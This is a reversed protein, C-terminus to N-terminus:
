RRPAATRPNLVAARAMGPPGVRIPRSIADLARDRLEQSPKPTTPLGGPRHQMVGHRLTVADGPELTTKFYLQFDRAGDTALRPHTWRAPEPAFLGVSPRKQGAPQQCLVSRSAAPVPDDGLRGQDTYVVADGSGLRTHVVAAVELPQDTPNRLTDHYCALSLAPDIRILRTVEVEGAAGDFRYALEGHASTQPPVVGPDPAIGPAPPTFQQGNISLAGALDFADNRGNIIRGHTDLDWDTAAPNSAPAGPQFAAVLPPASPATPWHNVISRIPGVLTLLLSAGLLTREVFNSRSLFLNHSEVQSIRAM